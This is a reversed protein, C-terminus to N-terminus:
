WLQIVLIIILIKFVLFHLKSHNMQYDAILWIIKNIKKFIELGMIKNIKFNYCTSSKKLKIRHKM